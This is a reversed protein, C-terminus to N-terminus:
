DMIRIIATTGGARTSCYLSYSETDDLGVKKRLVSCVDRATEERRVVLSRYSKDPMFFKVVQVVM